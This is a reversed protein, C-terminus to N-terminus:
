SQAEVDEALLAEVKRAEELAVIMVDRLDTV